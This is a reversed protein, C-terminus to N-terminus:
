QSEARAVIEDAVRRLTKLQTLSKEFGARKGDRNLSTEAILM